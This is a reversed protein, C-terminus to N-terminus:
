EESAAKAKTKSKAPADEKAQVPTETAEEDKTAEPEATVTEVEETVEPVSEPRTDSLEAFNHNIAYEVDPHARDAETIRIAGDKPVVVYGQKLSLNTGTKNILYM